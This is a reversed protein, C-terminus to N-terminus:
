SSSIGGRRRLKALLSSFNFLKKKVRTGNIDVGSELNYSAFIRIILTRLMGVGDVSTLNNDKANLMSKAHVRTRPVSHPVYLFRRRGRKGVRIRTIVNDNM